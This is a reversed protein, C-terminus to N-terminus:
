VQEVQVENCLTGQTCGFKIAISCPSDSFLCNANSQFAKKHLKKIASGPVKQLTYKYKSWIKDKKKARPFM